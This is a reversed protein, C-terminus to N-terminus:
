FTIYLFITGIVGGALGTGLVLSLLAKTNDVTWEGGPPGLLPKQKVIGEYPTPGGCRGNLLWAATAMPWGANPSEAKRAQAAVARFGPWCSVPSAKGSNDSGGCGMSKGCACHRHTFIKSGRDALFMLLACLRAPVFALADDLRASAKGLYLWRETKYGWMSDMTSATKYLWLGVPGGLCLWFFPAVFADNCNESLSEALSRCLESPPMSGTDRSVLMQVAHRAEELAIKADLAIEPNGASSKHLLQAREVKKLATRGERVLCGLALGAWALYLSAALGFLSPLSVLAASLVGSTALLICLAAAGAAVPHGSRRAPSELRSALLGIGRVPHPMGPPDAFALDLVLAASPIWWM